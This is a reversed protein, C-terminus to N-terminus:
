DHDDYNHNHNHDYDDHDDDDDGGLFDLQVFSHGATAQLNVIARITLPLKYDNLPISDMGGISTGVLQAPGINAWSNDELQAQFRADGDYDPSTKIIMVFIKACVPGLVTGPADASTINHTITKIHKEGCDDNDDDNDNDNDDDHHLEITTVRGSLTNMQGQMDGITKMIQKWTKGRTDNDDAGALAVGGLLTGGILVVALITSIIKKM